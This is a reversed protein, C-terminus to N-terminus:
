ERTLAAEMRRRFLVAEKTEDMEVNSWLIPHGTAVHHKLRAGEVLGIPVGGMELADAAAMLKGYVCYGGEGDLAQGTELGRKAHAVVDASFGKAAGTARGLLGVHAVSLGLELGIFHFPRYLASYRGSDDTVIGYESFCRAVYESPAEFTVFVGWRLDREVPKGDRELSSVVELTGKHELAGGDERPRCVNALRGVGAPPFGLGRAQPSLGTANAVSAMELASKTGDVFSNFMRANMGAAAAQKATIGYHDWVTDPNSAHFEPLYKTGKGACVVKLGCARAWEVQECILAPQDGYALSYVVGAEDALHALLPGALADAEVNVMVVHRGRKFCALAHRIGAEPVGTAEVVVDVGGANIAAIPDDTLFTSGRDLAKAPSAAAYRGKPWGAAALARRAKNPSVDAVAMVHLGPMHQAQALFMAGFKGAGILGVRVPRGEAARAQLMRHLNM